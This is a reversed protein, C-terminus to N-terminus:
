VPGIAVFSFPQDAVGAGAGTATVFFENVTGFGNLAIQSPPNTNASIVVSPLASFARGYSVTYTGLGTRIVTFDEGAAITGGAFVSGRIIRQAAGALNSRILPFADQASVKYSGGSTTPSLTSGGGISLTGGLVTNLSVILAGGVTADGVTTLHTGVSMTTTTSLSGTLALTSTINTGTIGGVLAVPASINGSNDLTVFSQSAPPASPLTLTYGASLAAPSSLTIGNASTAVERITLSGGDLNAPKNVDSQFVFTKSLSVYTVSAPSVLNTINGAAAAISGSQTLRIQNGNGDNYYLDVGAVYSANLDEPDSIPSGQPNFRISRPSLINTNQFDLDSNINLGAPPIPVGSGPTHNHQDVLSLSTNLDQAWTPALELGVTPLILTMNPTLTSAM